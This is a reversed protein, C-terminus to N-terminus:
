KPTFKILLTGECIQIKVMEDSLCHPGRTFFLSSPLSFASFCFTEHAPCYSQVCM